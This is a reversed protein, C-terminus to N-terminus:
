KKLLEEFKAIVAPNKDAVDRTEGPDTKLDYLEWKEGAKSRV